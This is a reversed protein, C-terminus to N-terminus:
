PEVAAVHSLLVTSCLSSFCDIPPLNLEQRNWWAQRLDTLRPRLIDTYPKFVVHVPRTNQLSSYDAARGAQSHSAPTNKFLNRRFSVFTRKLRNWVILFGGIISQMTPIIIPEIGICDVPADTIICCNCLHTKLLWFTEGYFVYPSLPRHLLVSPERCHLGSVTSLCSRFRLHLFDAIFLSCLYSTEGSPFVASSFFM